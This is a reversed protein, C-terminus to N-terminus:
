RCTPGTVDRGGAPGPGQRNSSVALRCRAGQLRRRAANRPLEGPVAPRRIRRLGRDPAGRDQERGSLDEPPVGLDADATLVYGSGSALPQLRASRHERIPIRGRMLAIIDSSQIPISLLRKFDPDSSASRKSRRGRGGPRGPLLAVRRRRGHARGPFGAAFLVVSLKLPDSGIWAMREDMQVKGEKRITLRGVGKFNKLRENTKSSTSWSRGPKSRSTALGGGRANAELIGSWTACGSVRLAAALILARLATARSRHRAATGDDPGRRDGLRERDAAPDKDAAREKGEAKEPDKTRKRRAAQGHVEPLVQPRERKDNLKLYADGSTSWSSPTRPVLEAAKKLHQLAKEYDGKKYYVWGLSDTIYGDNPKHKLAELVLREAEDLNQGLDAYTYGLYNLANANKPDLEIVKRM